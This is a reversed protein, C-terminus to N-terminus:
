ETKKEEPKPEAPKEGAPKEGAPPTPKTEAPAAAPPAAEPPKEAPTGEPMPAAAPDKFRANAAVAYAIDRLVAGDLKMKVAAAMAADSDDKAASITELTYLRGGRVTQLSQVACPSGGMPVQRVHRVWVSEGLKIRKPPERVVKKDKTLKQLISKEMAQANAETTDDAGYPSEAAAVTMRPLESVKGKAFVVLYNAQNSFRWDAPPCIELRGGDLARQLPEDVPPLDTLDYKKIEDSNGSPPTEAEGEAASKKAAPKTEADGGCGAVGAVLVLIVGALTAILYHTKM